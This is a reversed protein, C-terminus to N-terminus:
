AAGDKYTADFWRLFQKVSGVRAVRDHLARQDHGPLFDRTSLVAGCGCACTRTDAEEDFYTIPNRVGSVPSPQHVYKDYVPHGKRLVSGVLARRPHREPVEDIHEIEIAQRVTGEFSLLAYQEQDARAGLVWCGRNAEYLESDTVSEDFGFFTRGLVDKDPADQRKGLTIHLM